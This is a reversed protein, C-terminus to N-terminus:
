GKGVVSVKIVAHLRLYNAMWRNELLLCALQGLNCIMQRKVLTLCVNM